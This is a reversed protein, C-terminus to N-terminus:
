QHSRRGGVGRARRRRREGVGALDQLGVPRELRHRRGMDAFAGAAVVPEVAVADDVGGPHRPAESLVPPRREASRGFATREALSVASVPRRRRRGGAQGAGRLDARTAQRGPGRLRSPAVAPNAQGPVLSHASRRLAQSPARDGAGAPHRSRPLRAPEPLDVAAPARGAPPPRCGRKSDRSVATPEGTPRPSAPDRQHPVGVPAVGREIQGAFVRREARRRSPGPPAPPRQRETPARTRARRGGPLDVSPPGDAKGWERVHLRLGGGGRVTHTKMWGSATPQGQAVATM